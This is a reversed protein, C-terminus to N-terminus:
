TQLTKELNDWLPPGVYSLAKQGVNTKQHLANLKQYSSSTHIENTELPVYRM